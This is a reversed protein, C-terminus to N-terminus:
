FGGSSHFLLFCLFFGARETKETIEQKPGVFGSGFEAMDMEGATGCDRATGPDLLPARAQALSYGHVRNAVIM